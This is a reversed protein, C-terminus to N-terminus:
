RNVLGLADAALLGTLIVLVVTMAILVQALRELRDSAVNSAEATRELHRLTDDLTVFILDDTSM